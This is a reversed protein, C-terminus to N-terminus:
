WIFYIKDLNQLMFFAPVWEGKLLCFDLMTKFSTRESKQLILM